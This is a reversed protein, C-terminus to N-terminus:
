GFVPLNLPHTQESLSGSPRSAIADAVIALVSLAASVYSDLGGLSGWQLAVLVLVVASLVAGLLFGVRFGGLSVLSDIVLIVAVVLLLTPLYTSLTVPCGGLPCNSPTNVLVAAIYAAWLGNLLSLAAGVRGIMAM